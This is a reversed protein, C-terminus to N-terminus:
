NLQFRAQSDLGAGRNQLGTGVVAPERTMYEWFHPSGFEDYSIVNVLEYDDSMYNYDCLEDIPCMTDDPWLAWLDTCPQM